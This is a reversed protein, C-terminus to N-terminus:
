PLGSKNGPGKLKVCTGCATSKGCIKKIVHAPTSDERMYLCLQYITLRAAEQKDNQFKALCIFNNALINM